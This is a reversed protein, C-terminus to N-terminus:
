PLGAPQSPRPWQALSHPMCAWLYGTGVCMCACLDRDRGVHLCMLVRTTRVKKDKKSKKEEGVGAEEGMQKKVTELAEAMVVLNKRPAVGEEYFRLREEVQEKM